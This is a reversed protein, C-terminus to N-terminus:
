AIIREGESSDPSLSIRQNANAEAIAADARDNFASDGQSQEGAPIVGYSLLQGSEAKTTLFEAQEKTLYDTGDESRILEMNHFQFGKVLRDIRTGTEDALDQMRITATALRAEEASDEEATNGGTWMSDNAVVQEIRDLAEQGWLRNGHEDFGIPTPIVGQNMRGDLQDRRLGSADLIDETTFAPKGVLAEAGAINGGAMAMDALMQRMAGVTLTANMDMGDLSTIGSM